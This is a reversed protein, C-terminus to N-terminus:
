PMAKETGLIYYNYNATAYNRLDSNLYTIKGSDNISVVNLKIIPHEILKFEDTLDALREEYISDKATIIFKDGPNLPDNKLIVCHSTNNLKGTVRGTRM